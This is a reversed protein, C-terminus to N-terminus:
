SMTFVLAYDHGSNDSCYKWEKQFVEEKICKRTDLDYLYLRRKRDPLDHLCVEFGAPMRKGRLLQHRPHNHQVYKASNRLYVIGQECDESFLCNALYGEGNLWAGAAKSVKEPIEAFFSEKFGKDAEMDLLAYPPSSRDDQLWVDTGGPLPDLGWAYEYELGIRTFAEEYKDLVLLDGGSAFPQGKLAKKLNRLPHVRLIVPPIRKQFANWDIKDSVLSPVLHEEATLLENWNYCYFVRHMFSQWVFDRVLLRQEETWPFLCHKGLHKDQGYHWEPAKPDWPPLHFCDGEGYIGAPHLGFFKYVVAMRVDSKADMTADVPMCKHHRVNFPKAILEPAFEPTCTSERFFTAQDVCLLHNSDMTRIYDTLHNYLRSRMIADGEGSPSILMIATDDRFLLLFQRLFNEHMKRIEPRCWQDYLVVSYPQHGKKEALIDDMGAMFGAEKYQTLNPLPPEHGSFMGYLDHFPEIKAYINRSRCFDLIQAILEVGYPSIKGGANTIDIPWPSICFTRYGCDARRQLWCNIEDTSLGTFFVGEFRGGTDRTKTEYERIDFVLSEKETGVQVAPVLDPLATSGSLLGLHRGNRAYGIHRGEKDIVHEVFKGDTVALRTQATLVAKTLKDTATIVAEYMGASLGPVMAVFVGSKDKESMKFDKGGFTLTLSTEDAHRLKGDGDVAVAHVLVGKVAKQVSIVGPLEPAVVPCTDSWASFCVDGPEGEELVFRLRLCMYRTQYGKQRLINGLPIKILGAGKQIDSKFLTRVPSGHPFTYDHNREFYAEVRWSRCTNKVQVNLGPHQDILFEYFPVCASVSERGLCSIRSEEDSIEAYTGEGKLWWNFDNKKGTLLLRSCNAYAIIAGSLISEDDLWRMARNYTMFRPAKQNM